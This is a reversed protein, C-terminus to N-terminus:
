KPEDDDMVEIKLGRLSKHLDELSTDEPLKLTVIETGVCVPCLNTMYSGPKSHGCELWTSQAFQKGQDDVFFQVLPLKGTLPLPALFGASDDDDNM